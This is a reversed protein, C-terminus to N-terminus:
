RASGPEWAGCFRSRSPGSRLRGSLGVLVMRARVHRGPSPWRGHPASQESAGGAARASSLVVDAISALLQGAAPKPSRVKTNYLELQDASLTLMLEATRSFAFSGVPRAGDAPAQFLSPTSYPWYM